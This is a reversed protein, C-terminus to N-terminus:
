LNRDNIFHMFILHQVRWTVCPVYWVVFGLIILFNFIYIKNNDQCNNYISVMLTKWENLLQTILARFYIYRQVKQTQYSIM